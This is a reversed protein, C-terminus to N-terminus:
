VAEGRYFVSVVRVLKFRRILLIKRFTEILSFHAHCKGIECKGSRFQMIIRLNPVKGRLTM